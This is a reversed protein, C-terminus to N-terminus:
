KAAAVSTVQITDGTVTGTVAAKTGAYKDLQASAGKLKYMKDGVLLAFGSGMKVCERTCAADSKGPSMHKKGCMDDTVTGTFSQSAALAFTSLLIVLALLLKSHKM